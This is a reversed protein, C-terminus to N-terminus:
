GERRRTRSALIREVCSELDREIQHQWVRVVRWGARRLRGFNRRDRRINGAIKQLWFPSLNSSWQSFRYGHWFGGDIFVAVKHKKFAIDPKGPLSTVQRSFRAGRRRLATMVAREPGTNRGKVRSMCLSRQSPTLNDAMTRRLTDTTDPRHERLPRQLM